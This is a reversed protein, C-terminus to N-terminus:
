VGTTGPLYRLVRKATHYHKVTPTKMFTALYNTSYMMDPRSACMSLLSGVLSRYQSPDVVSAASTLNFRFNSELPTNVPKCNEM